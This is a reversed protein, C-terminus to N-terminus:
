RRAQDKERTKKKMDKGRYQKQRRCDDHEIYFSLPKLRAESFVKPSSLRGINLGYGQAIRDRHAM